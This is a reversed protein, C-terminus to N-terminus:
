LSTDIAQDERKDNIVTDMRLVILRSWPAKHKLGKPREFFKAEMSDSATRMRVASDFHLFVLM